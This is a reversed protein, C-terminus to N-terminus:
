WAITVKGEARQQGYEMRVLYAGSPIVSSDIVFSRTATTGQAVERGRIDFLQYRITSNESIEFVIRDGEQRINEIRQLEVDPQVSVESTLTLEGLYPIAYASNPRLNYYTKTINNPYQIILSDIDRVEGLGINLENSNQSGTVGTGGGQLERYWMQGGAYVKLRTGYASSNLKSSPSGLLRLSLWKGKRPVNNRFLRLADTPSAAILDMDGDRDFDGRAATWAGHIISGLEWTLERFMFDKTKGQNLYMRSRRTPENNTGAPNYAYQCHWLDLNGDLDLDLWVVGANMEFFKIGLQQHVEEFKFDPYGSNRYLLSPNSVAGRVDPHGLNGVMLDSWGDNNYDAWECGLGHGFYQPSGTPQGRVGTEAAVETFTGDGNNRYLLDPALRYTAVFIDTWGDNNYDCATAGWCDYYPAPEGFAIGSAETVNSFTGDGNNKWLQDPFYEEQGNAETRGNSIFLDLTGDHNYDLWIPTVTPRPNQLKSEATVDTFSGDSTNRYLKDATGGNIAYCDLDGDNDYDGWVSAAAQIGITATADQFTGDGKNQFFTSGVAVDDWGDNNWDVVSVRASKLLKGTNDVLGVTKTVDVLTPTPPAASRNGNPYDYVVVARVLFDGKALYYNGIVPFNPPYTYPDYLIPFGGVSNDVAFWPGGERVRHQVLIQDFGDFHLNRSRLDITDWGPTGDYNVIIPETLANYSWVYSTPPLAGEAANGVLWLTDTGAQSGTYYIHLEHLTCPGNPPLFMTEEWGVVSRSDNGVPTGNDKKLVVPTQATTPIFM